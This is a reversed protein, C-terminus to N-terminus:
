SVPAKKSDKRFSFPVGWTAYFLEFLSLAM